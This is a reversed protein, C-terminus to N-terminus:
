IDCRATQIMPRLLKCKLLEALLTLSTEISILRTFVLTEFLMNLCYTNTESILISICFTSAYITM